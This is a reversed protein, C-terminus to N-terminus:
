RARYEVVLPKVDNLHLHTGPLFYLIYYSGCISTVVWGRLAVVPVLAYM